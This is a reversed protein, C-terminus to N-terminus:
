KKVMAVFVDDPYLNNKTARTISYGPLAECVDLYDVGYRPWLRVDDILITHRVPAVILAELEMSLPYDHPIEGGPRMLHADLWVVAPYALSCILHKFEHGASSCQYIYADFYADRAKGVLDADVEFSHIETFGAAYAAKIGAGQYTGTEVLISEGNRASAFLSKLGM